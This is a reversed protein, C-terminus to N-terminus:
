CLILNCRVKYKSIFFVDWNNSSKDEARNIEVSISREEEDVAESRGPDEPQEFMISQSHFLRWKQYKNKVLQTVSSLIM